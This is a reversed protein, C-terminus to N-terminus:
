LVKILCIEDLPINRISKKIQLQLSNEDSSVVFGRLGHKNNRTQDTHVLVQCGALSTLRQSLSLGFFLNILEPSCSVVNGFNLVLSRRFCADTNRLEGEEHGGGNQSHGNGFDHDGLAPDASRTLTVLREFPILVTEGLTDLQLYNRGADRIVGLVALVNGDCEVAAKVLTGRMRRFNLQLARGNPFNGGEEAEVADGTEAAQGRSTGLTLLLNNVIDIDRELRRLEDPPLESTPSSFRPQALTQPCDPPPCFDPDPSPAAPFRNELTAAFGEGEFNTNIGTQEDFLPDM